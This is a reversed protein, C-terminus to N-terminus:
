IKKGVQDRDEQLMVMRDCDDKGAERVGYPKRVEENRIRDIRTVGKIFKLMRVEAVNLKM